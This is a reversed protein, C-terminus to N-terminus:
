WATVAKMLVTPLSLSSDEAVNKVAQSFNLNGKVWDQWPQGDEYTVLCDEDDADTHVLKKTYALADYYNGLRDVLGLAKARNGTYVRGDALARVKEPRMHREKAVVAVFQNYMENVMDQTMQKEEATMPRFPSFIDKHAGSKIKEERIGLKRSLGRADYYSMYVGISGTITSPDAFLTDGYVALWYGGSAATDGMSVVVPIHNDKARQLERAIEQTAAASGGPSDIRLLIAGVEADATAQRIQKMLSPATAGGTNWFGQGDGGTIPGSVTILAIKKGRKGSGDYPERVHLWAAMITIVCIVLLTVGTIYRKKKEGM